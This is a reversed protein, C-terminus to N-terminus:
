PKVILEDTAEVPPLAPAMKCCCCCNRCCCCCGPREGVGGWVVQVAILTSVLGFFGLSTAILLLVGGNLFSNRASGRTGPWFVADYRTPWWSCDFAETLSSLELESIMAQLAVVIKDVTATANTACTLQGILAIRASEAAIQMAEFDSDISAAVTANTVGMSAATITDSVISARTVNSRLNRYSSVRVPSGDLLGSSNLQGELYSAQFKEFSLSQSITTWLDVSPSAFCQKTLNCGGIKGFSGVDVILQECAYTGLTDHPARPARLLFSGGDTLVVGSFILMASLFFYFVSVVSFYVWSCGITQVGVGNTSCKRVDMSRKKMICLCGLMTLLLFVVVGITVGAAFLGVNIDWASEMAGLYDDHTSNINKILDDLSKLFTTLSSTTDSTVSTVSLDVNALASKVEGTADSFSPVTTCALRSGSRVSGRLSVFAASASLPIGQSAATTEISALKSSATTMHTCSTPVAGGSAFGRDLCDVYRQMLALEAVLAALTTDLADFKSYVRSLTGTVNSFLDHTSCLTRQMGPTLNAMQLSALCALTLTLVFFVFCCCGVAAKHRRRYGGKRPRCPGKHALCRCIWCPLLLLLVVFLLVLPPLLFSTIVERAYDRAAQEDTRVTEDIVSQLFTTMPAMRNQPQLVYPELTSEGTNVGTNFETGDSPLPTCQEDAWLKRSM